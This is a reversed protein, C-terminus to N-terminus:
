ALYKPGRQQLNLRTGRGKYALVRGDLEIGLGEVGGEVGWGLAKHRREGPRSSSLTAQRSRCKGKNLSHQVGTKSNTIATAKQM